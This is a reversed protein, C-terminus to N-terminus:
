KETESVPFRDRDLSVEGHSLTEELFQPSLNVQAKLCLELFGMSSVPTGAQIMEEYLRRMEAAWEDGFDVSLDRIKGQVERPDMWFGTKVRDDACDDSPHDLGVNARDQNIM